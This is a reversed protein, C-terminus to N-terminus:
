GFVVLARDDLVRFTFSETFFLQVTKSDHHEYGIAIDQGITM